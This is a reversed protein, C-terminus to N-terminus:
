IKNTLRAQQNLRGEPYTSSPSPFRGGMTTSPKEGVLQLSLTKGDDWVYRQSRGREIPLSRTKDDSLKGAHASRGAQRRNIETPGILFFPAAEDM